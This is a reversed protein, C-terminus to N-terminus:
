GVIVYLTTSVKTSLADYAAQTLKVLTQISADGHVVTTAAVATTVFATTAVSTDNDGATPTPAKPDGTFTPSALDAKGTIGATVRSDAASAFDSITSATQTGTHNGRAIAAAKVVADATDAYATTAIQTNNTLATATPAAPTGTFTPSALNAKLAGLAAVFATTALQTTNTGAAATPAAPTGTFTPSALPAGNAIASTLGSIKSQAIAASASVDADVITGDAIKASTISGDAPAAASVATAVFATTAVKTTNDGATPTPAAPTGTFTPSALPANANVGAALDDLAQNIKTGWASADGGVTPKTITVM